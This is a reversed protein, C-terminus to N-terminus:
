AIVIRSLVPDIQRRTPVLVAGSGIPPPFTITFPLYLLENAVLPVFLVFIKHAKQAEKTHRRCPSRENLGLQEIERENFGM